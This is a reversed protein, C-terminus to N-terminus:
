ASTHLVYSGVEYSESSFCFSEQLRMEGGDEAGVFVRKVVEVNERVVGVVELQAFELM